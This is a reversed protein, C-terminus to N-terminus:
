FINKKKLMYYTCCKRSSHVSTLSSSEVRGTTKITITPRNRNM